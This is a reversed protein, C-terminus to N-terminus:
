CYNYLYRSLTKYHEQLAMRLASDSTKAYSKITAIILRKVQVEKAADLDLHSLSILDVLKDKLKAKEAADESDILESMHQLIM